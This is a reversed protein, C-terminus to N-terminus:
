IICAETICLLWFVSSELQVTLIQAFSDLCIFLLKCTPTFYNPNLKPNLDVQKLKNVPKGKSASPPLKLGLNNLAAAITPGTSYICCGHGASRCAHGAWDWCIYWGMTSLSVYKGIKNPNKDLSLVAM